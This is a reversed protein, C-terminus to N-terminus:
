CQPVLVSVPGLDLERAETFAATEYTMEIGDQLQAFIQYRVPEERKAGAIIDAARTMETQLNAELDIPLNTLHSWEEAVKQIDEGYPPETPMAAATHLLGKVLGVRLEEKETEDCIGDIVAIDVGVMDPCGHFRCLYDEKKCGYPDSLVFCRLDTHGDHSYVSSYDFWPDLEKPLIKLFRSYDPRYMALHFDGLFYLRIRHQDCLRKVEAYAEWAALEMAQEPSIGSQMSSIGLLRACAAEDLAPEPSKHLFSIYYDLTTKEIDALTQELSLGRKAAVKDAIKNYFPYDHGAAINKPTMYDEGYNHELIWQYGMPVPMTINEFPMRIASALVAKPMRYDNGIAMHDMQTYYDAEEETFMGAVRNWLDMLESDTPIKGAFSQRTAKKITEATSEIVEQKEKFEAPSLEETALERRANTLLTICQCITLQQDALDEDRPVNDLIFVDVSAQFPSGHYQRLYRREESYLEVSGINAAHMRHLSDFADESLKLGYPHEKLIRRIRRYDERKMCIDMDDDWPIFGHHRVTGLLTGWAAYYRIGYQQCLRDIKYMVELQAAWACKMMASITFGDRTEEEFYSPEFVLEEAEKEM